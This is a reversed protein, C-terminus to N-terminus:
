LQSAIFQTVAEADGLGPTTPLRVTAGDALELDVYYPQPMPYGRHTAPHFFSPQRQSFCAGRVQALRFRRTGFPWLPGRAFCLEGSVVTLSARNVMARVAAYLLAYGVLAYGVLAYGVLTVGVAPVWRAPLGDSVLLMTTSAAIMLGWSGFM